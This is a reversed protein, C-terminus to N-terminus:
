WERYINYDGRGAFPEPHFSTEVFPDFRIAEDDTDKPRRNQEKPKSQTRGEFKRDM